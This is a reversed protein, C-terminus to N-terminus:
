RTLLWLLSGTPMCVKKNLIVNQPKYNPNIKKGWKTDPPISIKHPPSYPTSRSPKRVKSPTTAIKYEDRSSYTPAATTGQEEQSPLELTVTVEETSPTSGLLEQGSFKSTM